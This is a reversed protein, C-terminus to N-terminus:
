GGICEFGPGNVSRVEHSFAAAMASERPNAVIGRSSGLAAGISTVPIATGGMVARRQAIMSMAKAPDGAKMAEEVSKPLRPLVAPDVPEKVQGSKLFEQYTEKIAPGLAGFTSM